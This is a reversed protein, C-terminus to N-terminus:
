IWRGHGKMNYYGGDHIEACTMGEVENEGKQEGGGREAGGVL